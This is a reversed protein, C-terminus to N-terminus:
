LYFTDAINRRVPQAAIKPHSLPGRRLPFEPGPPDPPIRPDADPARAPERLHMFSGARSPGAFMGTTAEEARWAPWGQAQSEDIRALRM